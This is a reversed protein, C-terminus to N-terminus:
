PQFSGCPAFFAYRYSDQDAPVPLCAEHKHGDESEAWQLESKIVRFFPFRNLDLGPTAVKRVDLKALQNGDCDSWFVIEFYPYAQEPHKEILYDGRLGPEAASKPVERFQETARINQLQQFADSIEAEFNTKIQNALGELAHDASETSHELYSANLLMLTVGASVLLLTLVLLWGDGQRFRETNSMYQLKFWPWSFGLLVAACLALWILVSYPLAHSEANVKASLRLGVLVLGWHSGEKSDNGLAVPTPQAFLLYDKGGIAVRTASSGHSLRELKGTSSNSTRTITRSGAAAKDSGSSDSDSPKAASSDASGGNLFGFVNQKISIDVGSALTPRLNAIRPGSESLQFLVRGSEDAILIDDFFNNYDQFASQVWPKMDLRLVSGADGSKVVGENGPVESSPCQVFVVLESPNEEHVLRANEPHMGLCALFSPTPTKRDWVGEFYTDSYAAFCRAADKADRCDLNVGVGQPKEKAPLIKALSSMSLQARDFEATLQASIRGLNRFEQDILYERQGGVFYNEYGIFFGLLVGWTVLLLIIKRV